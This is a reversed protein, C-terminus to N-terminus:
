RRAPPALEACRPWALAVLPLAVAYVWRLGLHQALQGLLPPGLLFVVFATQALAAVNAAAPRDRRQAAASMALPFMVSTGLAMLAFGALALAVDPALAVVLAGAALLAQCLRAIRVPGHREVQADAVFRGAAQALASVTVAAGATFPLAAFTDRMYIASWDGTAGEMLMAPLTLLMLGLIAGSPRAFRPAASPEGAQGQERPAAAEFRRLLVLSALLVLPVVALLHRQPSWGAQSLAAGVGGAACFGLSWFAHARNMIRRGFRHEVRDAELNVVLETAGIVLGVPLLALYLALPGKAWSALAMLLPLLPLLLQLARRGGLRAAVPGAFSLSILTGSSLGILALGLAGESVGLQRQMDALRPFLGGMGFAYLFFMAFVRRRAAAALAADPSAEPSADPSAPLAPPASM